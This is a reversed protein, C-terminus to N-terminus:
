LEYGIGLRELFGLFGPNMAVSFSRSFFDVMMENQRDVLKINLRVAGVNEKLVNMFEKRFEPTIIEVPLKLCVRKVLEDKVNALLSIKRIKFEREESNGGFRPQTQCRIYLALGPELYGMFNEYDKGFLSFSLSGKFDEITFSAWPKGTKKTVSKKVSTVLGALSVEIDAPARKASVEKLLESADLLSHTVFHKIEFAYGDLPHSSLYMGVLEREKNLIELKSFEVTPTHQPRVAPIADHMGFLSNVNSKKELQVKYGYRILQDIYVEDKGSVAFFDSRGITKFSDFAGAYVLSDMIKRNLVSSPNVREVFDFISTFPGNDEREKVIMEVAASGVGKIGGMGFRIAGQSNVTFNMESENIDPGLVAIGIRKSEDMLKSIEDMKDLNRSLSGAMFEKPYNAKLWATQYGLLAYCTSHSKNFAYEAFSVWDEWIKKLKAEPHGLQLGGEKFLKEQEKMKGMDKKGIAKRLSDAQGGTFGALKQSLLMVQEQYVTIGYTEALFEEMGPLDYEIYKQNFKRKIFDPIYAMPGPRYLANMAILDEFRNPKLETLWKRMGDSEFQFIGVTDGRSFLEYTKTDDLPLADIDIEVGHMRRVNDISERIISLARLGLFDMKLMGVEEINSGEYQSVLMEEGSEKDKATFLPIHEMLSDKGIIIACAHVGTHRISGELKQAYELTLPILPEKSLMEEKFAALANMCNALTVEQAKGDKEPLRDPIMKALRESESLTLRQIRAVDKIASKAAMTGFTVVHSVHDKGYKDEVYQLVKGRGDDSFDIDMDPMSIREPNLFREFLLGYKIPDIKTIGLCYAVVSGAVSGRGPGVWVGMNRAAHIFDRVILFYGPFGMNKITGLEYEIREMTTENLSGYLKEAGEFTLHRLYVNADEFAVPIPFDPMIPKNDISYREIKSVIELTNELAHPLDSFLELMESQTKFYEEGTYRMRKPDDVESNTNICILRDHAMADGAEVFHVDNAAIIKIDHRYALEILDNEIRKQHEYVEQLAPNKSKHRHLEIYYDEGFLKKYLLIREEAEKKKGELLLSPVEGALCASCAILGEHYRELLVHDVRPRYYFGETYALSSLKILNKYGAMNKALLVLHNSSQDERGRRVERGDPSVYVECGVIPKVDPYKESVKLFEKVGFMNGHDTIALAIQEDEHVKAFLKAIPAAGDLISYQTHVHLHAFM